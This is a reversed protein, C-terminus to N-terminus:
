FDRCNKNFPLHSPVDAGVQSLLGPNPGPFLWHLGVGSLPAEQLLHGYLVLLLLVWGEGLMTFGQVAHVDKQPWRQRM